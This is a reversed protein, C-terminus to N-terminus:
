VQIENNQIPSTAESGDSVEVTIKYICEDPLGLVALAQQKQYEGTEFTIMYANDSSRTRFHKKDAFFIVKNDDM